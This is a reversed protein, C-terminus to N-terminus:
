NGSFGQPKKIIFSSRNLREDNFLYQKDNIPDKEIDIVLRSWRMRIQFQEPLQVSNSGAPGDVRTWAQYNARWLAKRLVPLFKLARYYVARACKGSVPDRWVKIAAKTFFTSDEPQAILVVRDTKGPGGSLQDILIIQYLENLEFGLLERLPHNEQPIGRYYTPTPLLPPSLLMDVKGDLYAVEILPRNIGLSLGRARFMDPGNALVSLIVQQKEDAAFFRHVTLTALSSMRINHIATSGERAVPRPRLPACGGLVILVLCEAMMIQRKWQDWM